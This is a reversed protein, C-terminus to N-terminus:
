RNRRRRKNKRPKAESQETEIPTFQAAFPLPVVTAHDKNLWKLIDKSVIEGQRQLALLAKRAEQANVEGSKVRERLKGKELM